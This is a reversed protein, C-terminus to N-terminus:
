LGQVEGVLTVMNLSRFREPNDSVYRVAGEYIDWLNQITQEPKFEVVGESASLDFPPELPTTKRADEFFCPWWSTGDTYFNNEHFKINVFIPETCSEAEDPCSEAIAGEIVETAAEGHSNEYLKIEVHEPRNLVGYSREGLDIGRGHVVRFTTGLERYIQFLTETIRGGGTNTGVAPPAYGMLERLYEFGGPADADPAGTVLDLAHTEYEFLLDYLEQDSLADLGVHDFNPYYPSPPRVHYSVAVLESSRMRTLLEPYATHYAQVMPDTLYIDVPVDYREHIDIVRNLTAASDELYVWDHTNITFLVHIRSTDSTDLAVDDTGTDAGGTEDPPADMRAVADDEFVDAADYAEATPSGGSGNSGFCALPAGACLAVLLPIRVLHFCMENPCDM